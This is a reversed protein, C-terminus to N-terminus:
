QILLVTAAIADALLRKKQIRFRLALAARAGLRRGEPSGQFVFRGSTM